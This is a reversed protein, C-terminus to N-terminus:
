KVVKNFMDPIFRESFGAIISLTILAYVNENAFGFALDGKSAVFLIGGAFAGFFVHSIVQMFVFTNQTTLEIDIEKNRQLLSFLSGITGSSGCITVFSWSNTNAGLLLFVGGLVLAMVSCSVISLVIFFAKMEAPSKLTKIDEYINEFHNLGDADSKESLASFLCSALRGKLRDKHNSPFEFSIKGNLEKYKNIILNPNVLIDQYEYSIGNRSDWFVIVRESTDIISTIKLGNQSIDGIKYENPKKAKNELQDM